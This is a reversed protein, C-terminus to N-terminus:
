PMGQRLRVEDDRALQCLDRLLCLLDALELLAVASYVLILHTAVVCRSLAHVSRYTQAGRIDCMRMMYRLLMIMCVFIYVCM